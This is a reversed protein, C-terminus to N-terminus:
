GKLNKLEGMADALRQMVPSLDVTTKTEPASLASFGGAAVKMAAARSLGNERLLHELERQSALSKVSTVRARRNAPVAVVSVEYLDVETLLRTGDPNAKASITVYGISLGWVDRSKLHAHAERGRETELSLRGDVYLGQGDERLELWRGIPAAPDHSWLMVPLTGAAKHAALSKRFAGPAIVDGYSDPEGGFVAGYGSVLGEGADLNALKVELPPAARFLSAFDSTDRQSTM